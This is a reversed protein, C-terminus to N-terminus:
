RRRLWMDYLAILSVVAIGVGIGIGSVFPIVAYNASIFRVLFLGGIDFAFFLFLVLLILVKLWEGISTFSLIIGLSIFLLSFGLIHVHGLQVIEQPSISERDEEIDKNDHEDHNEIVVEEEAFGQEEIKQAEFQSLSHDAYHEAISEVTTGVALRANLAALIYGYWLLILFLTVSIRASFSLTNLSTRM